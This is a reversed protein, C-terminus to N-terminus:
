GIQLITFEQSLGKSVNYIERIIKKGQKAYLLSFNEVREQLNNTPFLHEKIKSLQIAQTTFKRKEVRLIKKELNIIQKLTKVQLAETHQQLTADVQQAINKLQQYINKIEAIEKSLDLQKDSERKVLENMLISKSKFLDEIVFGLKLLNEEQQKTFLLFSNRLILMPYPVNVASFVNKLELWYALEGGGGIFAINPLITEQFAGRLIVNGSFREPYNKLENLIEEQTFTLSSDDITFQSNHLVVRSRKNEYLYFLNLERGNAQVKYHKSLETSTQAVISHSFQETLEKQIVNEFSKKLAANDPILILLGYEAFLENVLALTAQQITKGEVYCKKFIEILEKGYTYVGVQGYIKEILEVFAKDVKMRGVAGTQKTNWILKEGNINIFGLEDLDADESGMYYVPIFQYEKLTENLDDALKIAHIIKYIFYLPGTFINPQHATTITFTNENLLLELNSKQKNSLPINQYQNYLENVLLKRNTNFLKRAQISQQIGEISVSYNYFNQLNKNEELYDIVLKSFYGTNKYPIYGCNSEM